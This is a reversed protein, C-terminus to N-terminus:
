DINSRESYPPCVCLDFRLRLHDPEQVVEQRVGLQLETECTHDARCRSSLVPASVISPLREARQMRRLAIKNDEENMWFIKATGPADPVQPFATLLPSCVYTSSRVMLHGAAAVIFTMIANFIFGTCCRFASILMPDLPISLPYRVFVKLWGYWFTQRADIDLEGAYRVRVHRFRPVLRQLQRDM